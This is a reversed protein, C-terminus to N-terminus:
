EVRISERRRPREAAGRETREIWHDIFARAALLQEKQAARLHQRVEAPFLARLLPEVVTEGRRKELKTLREELAALRGSLDRAEAKAM